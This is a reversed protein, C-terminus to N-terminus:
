SRSASAAETAAVISASAPATSGRESGRPSSTSRPPRARRGSSSRATAPRSSAATAYAGPYREALNDPRARRREGATDFRGAFVIWLGTGLDYDDSRLMGPRSGPSPAGRARGPARGAPRQETVLVVTYATLGSPGNSCCAAARSSRPAPEARDDTQPSGTSAAPTSRSPATPPRPSARGLRRDARQARLRVRRRRDRRRVAPLAIAPVNEFSRREDREPKLALRGGCELCVLQGREAEEGCRPCNM